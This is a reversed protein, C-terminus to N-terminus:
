IVKLDSEGSHITDEKNEAGIMKNQVNPACVIQNKDVLFSQNNQFNIGDKFCQILDNKNM